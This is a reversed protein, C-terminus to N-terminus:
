KKLGHKAILAEVEENTKLSEKKPVAKPATFGRHELFAIYNQLSAIENGLMASMADYKRQSVDQSFKIVNDM